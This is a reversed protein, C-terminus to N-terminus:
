RAARAPGARPPRPAAEEEEEATRWRPPPPTPGEKEPGRKHAPPRRRCVVVGSFSFVASKSNEPLETKLARAGARFLPLGVIRDQLLRQRPLEPLPRVLARAALAPWRGNKPPEAAATKATLPARRTEREGVGVSSASASSRRECPFRGAERSGGQQV